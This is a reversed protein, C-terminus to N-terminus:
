VTTDTLSLYLTPIDLKSFSTQTNELGPCSRLTKEKDNGSLM